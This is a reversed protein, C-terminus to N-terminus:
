PGAGPLARLTAQLAELARRVRTPQAGRRATLAWVPLAPVQWGPLLPVVRGAALDPEADPHVLLALGMGSACLQGVSLQNNSVLRPRVEVRVRTDGPGIFGLAHVDTASEPAVWDHSALDDPHAPTGARALYAPAACLVLRFTALRRAVWDSDPLRGARLAIDIRAEILDIHRDDVLLRLRLGRHLALLGALAPAVHRAFGVPASLRLEGELADRALRMQTRAEGAAQVLTRCSAWVGEGVETLRLKRTSRLLLTVGYAAELARLRQSVASPTTGLERAAASMSGLRVVAEFVSLAQLDDIM